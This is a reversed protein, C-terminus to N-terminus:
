LTPEFVGPAPMHTPRMIANIAELTTTVEIIREGRWAAFSKVQAPTLAGRGKTRKGGDKAGGKALPNKVEIAFTKGQYGVLLDPVGAGDLRFVTCGLHELDRVIDAENADRRKPRHFRM